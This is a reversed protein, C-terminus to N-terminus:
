LIYEKLRLSNIGLKRNLTAESANIRISLDYKKYVFCVAKM